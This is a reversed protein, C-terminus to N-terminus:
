TYYWGTPKWSSSEKTISLDLSGTKPNQGYAGMIYGDQRTLAAELEKIFTTIPVKQAMYFVGKKLEINNSFNAM